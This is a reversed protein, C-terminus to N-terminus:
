ARPQILVEVQEKITEGTSVAFPRDGLAATLQQAVAAAEAPPCLVAIAGPVAAAPRARRHLTGEVLGVIADPVPRRVLLPETRAEDEAATPAFIRLLGHLFMYLTGGLMAMLVLVQNPSVIRVLLDRVAWMPLSFLFLSWGAAHFRGQRPPRAAALLPLALGLIPPVLEILVALSALRAGVSLVRLVGVFSSLFAFAWAFLGVWMRWVDHMRKGAMIAIGHMPMFTLGLFIGVVLLPWATPQQLMAPVALWGFLGTVLVLILERAMVKGM